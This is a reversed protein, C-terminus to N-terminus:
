QMTPKNQIMNKANAHRTNMAIGNVATVDDDRRASPEAQDPNPRYEQGNLCTQVYGSSRSECTAVIQIVHMSSNGANICHMDEAYRRELM